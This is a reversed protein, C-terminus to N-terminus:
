HITNTLSTCWNIYCFGCFTECFQNFNSMHGLMSMRRLVVNIFITPSKQFTSKGNGYYVSSHNRFYLELNGKVRLAGAYLTHILDLKKCFLNREMRCIENKM